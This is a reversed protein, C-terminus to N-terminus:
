VVSKRDGYIEEYTRNKRTSVQGKHSTVLKKKIDKARNNGYREEYSKDKYDRAQGKCPSVKGLRANVRILKLKKATEVGYIEEYTKGKSKSM